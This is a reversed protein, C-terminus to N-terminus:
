FSGTKFFDMVERTVEKGLIGWYQQFFRGNLGDNGPASSAKIAFVSERVEKETADRILKQNMEETIKSEFGQFFRDLNAPETSVFLKDFYLTAVKGMQENSSVVRGEEDTLKSLQNKQRTSKVSAHFFSTNNDGVM